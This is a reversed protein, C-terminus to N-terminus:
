TTVELQNDGSYLVSSKIVAYAGFSGTALAVPRFRWNASNGSDAVLPCAHARTSQGSASMWFLDDVYNISRM